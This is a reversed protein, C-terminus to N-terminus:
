RDQRELWEAVESCRYRWQNGLRRRPISLRGANNHIWSPPKGLFEAIQETTVFPEASREITTM